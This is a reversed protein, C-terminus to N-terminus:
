ANFAGDDFTDLLARSFGIRIDLRLNTDYANVGAILLALEPGAAHRQSASSAISPRRAWNASPASM